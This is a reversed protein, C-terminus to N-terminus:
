GEKQVGRNIERRRRKAAKAIASGDDASIDGSVLAAMTNALGQRIDANSSVSQIAHLSDEVVSPRPMTKKM